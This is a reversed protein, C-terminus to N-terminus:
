FWASQGGAPALPLRAPAAVSVLAIGRRGGRGPSAASNDDGEPHSGVGEWGVVSSASAGRRREHELYRSSPHRSTPAVVVGGWM